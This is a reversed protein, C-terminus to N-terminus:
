HRVILDTMTGALRKAKAEDEVAHELRALPNEARRTAEAEDISRSAVPFRESM